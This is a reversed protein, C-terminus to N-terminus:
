PCLQFDTENDRSVGAASDDALAPGDDFLDLFLGFGVDLDVGIRKRVTFFMNDTDLVKFGRIEDHCCYADKFGDSFGFAFCGDCHVVGL